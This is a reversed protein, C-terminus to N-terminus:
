SGAESTDYFIEYEITDVLASWHYADFSRGQSATIKDSFEEPSIGIFAADTAYVGPYADVERKLSACLDALCLTANIKREISQLYRNLAAKYHLEALARMREPYIVHLKYGYSFPMYLNAPSNFVKVFDGIPRFDDASLADSVLKMYSPYESVPISEDLLIYVTARGKVYGRDTQRLCKADLIASSVLKARSEYALATGCQALSGIYLKLWKRFEEDSTYANEGYTYIDYISANLGEFEPETHVIGLWNYLDGVDSADFLLREYVNAPEFNLPNRNTYRLGSPTIISFEGAQFFHSEMMSTCDVSVFVTSKKGQPRESIGYNSAMLDLLGGEMTDIYRNKQQQNVDNYLISIVYSFVSALAFEDSGIELSYGFREYFANRFALLINQVDNNILM